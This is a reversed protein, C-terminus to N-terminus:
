LITIGDDAAHGSPNSDYIEHINRERHNLKVRVGYKERLHRAMADASYVSRHRGGTCGFYVSLHTFGRQLYREVSADVLKYCSDLFTLIEGDEELFQIVLPDRGTLQKYEDYRGPNHTARCDFIFGGGNGSKDEPLGKKFSFSGVEVTLGMSEERKRENREAEIREALLIAIDRLHPYQEGLAKGDIGCDGDTLVNRLNFIGAEISALFHPKKEVWGRFGYAGLTQLVRFLVLHPLQRRFGKEDFDSSVEKAYGIYRDILTKRIDGTLGAKAQWLLSAVDYGVPGRRGGQFDIVTFFPFPEDIPDFKPDSDSVMVNRSQFDRLMFTECKWMDGLVMGRLSDFDEELGEESFLLGSPKLFCYKFYNLDWNVMRDDMEPQPYCKRFDLGKAGVFQISALCRLSVNLWGYAYDMRVAEPMPQTILDFVSRSGAYSQLYTMEDPSVEYIEPVCTIGQSRFHRSLYIFARNEDRVEGVTGVAKQGRGELLYYKRNSGAGAIPTVKDPEFGFHHRFLEEVSAGCPKGIRFLQNFM